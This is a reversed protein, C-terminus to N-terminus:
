NTTGDAYQYENFKIPLKSIDDDNISDISVKEYSKNNYILVEYNNLDTYAVKSLINKASNSFVVTGSPDLKFTVHCFKLENDCKNDDSTFLIFSEHANITVDPFKWKKNRIESNSLYYNKLNINRNSSNYLEVYSGYKKNDKNIFSTDKIVIKNIYITGPKMYGNSSYLLLLVILITIAFIYLIPKNKM